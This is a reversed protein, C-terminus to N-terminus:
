VMALSCIIQTEKRQEQDIKITLKEEQKLSLVIEAIKEKDKALLKNHKLERKLLERAFETLPTKYIDEMASKLLTVDINTKEFNLSKANVVM